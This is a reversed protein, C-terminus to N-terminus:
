VLFKLIMAAKMLEGGSGKSSGGGILQGLLGPVEAALNFVAITILLGAIDTQGVSFVFQIGLTLALFQVFQEFATQVLMRLWAQFVPQTGPHLSLLFAPGSLVFLLNFRVIRKIGQFVLRLVTFGVMLDLVISFLTAHISTSQGIHQLFTSASDGVVGALANNLLLLDQGIFASLHILLATLIAKGIFQTLPLRLGGTLDSYMIQMTGVIVFIGLFGDAVMVMTSWAHMIVANGTTYQIPMSSIFSFLTQLPTLIQQLLFLVVGTIIGLLTSGLGGFAAKLANLLGNVVGGVVDVGFIM